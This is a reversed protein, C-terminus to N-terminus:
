EILSVQVGAQMILTAIGQTLHTLVGVPVVLLSSAM